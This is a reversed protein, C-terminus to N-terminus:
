PPPHRGEVVLPSPPHRGEGVQSHCTRPSPLSFCHAWSPSLHAPPIMVRGGQWGRRCRYLLVWAPSSSPHTRDRAGRVARLLVREELFSGHIPPPVSVLAPLWPELAGARGGEEGEDEGGEGSVADM